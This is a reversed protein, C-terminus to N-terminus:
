DQFKKTISMFLDKGYSYANLILLLDDEEVFHKRNGDFESVEFSVGGDKPRHECSVLVSM